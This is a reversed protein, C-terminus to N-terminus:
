GPKTFFSVQLVFGQVNAVLNALYTTHVGIGLFERKKFFFIRQLLYVKNKHQCVSELKKPFSRDKFLHLKSSEARTPKSHPVPM